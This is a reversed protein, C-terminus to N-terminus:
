DDYDWRENKEKFKDVYTFDTEIKRITQNTISAFEKLNGLTKEYLLLLSIANNLAEIHYKDLPIRNPFDKVENQQVLGSLVSITQLRDAESLYNIM